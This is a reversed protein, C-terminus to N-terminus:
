IQFCSVLGIKVLHHVPIRLLLYIVSDDVSVDCFSVLAIKKEFNPDQSGVRRQPAGFLQTEILGKGGKHLFGLPFGCGEVGFM